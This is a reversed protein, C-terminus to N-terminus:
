DFLEDFHNVPQEGCATGLTDVSPEFMWGSSRQRALTQIAALDLLPDYIRVDRLSGQFRSSLPRAGAEVLPRGLCRSLKGHLAADGRGCVVILRDRRFLAVTPGLNPSLFDVNRGSSASGKVLAQQLQRANEAAAQPTDHEITQLVARSVRYLHSDARPLSVPIASSYQPAVGHAPLEGILQRRGYAVGLLPAPSRAVGPKAAPAGRDLQLMLWALAVLAVLAIGVVLMAPNTKQRRRIRSSTSRAKSVSRPGLAVQPLPVDLPLPVDVQTSSLEQDAVTAGGRLENDYALKRAPDTLCDFAHSLEALLRYVQEAKDSLQYRRVLATRDLVAARIREVDPEGVPLGLLEYHNPPRLEAPIRLWQLYPDFTILATVGRGGGEM